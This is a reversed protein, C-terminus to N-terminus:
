GKQWDERTVSDKTSLEELLMVLWKRDEDGMKSFISDFRSKVNECGFFRVRDKLSLGLSDTIRTVAGYSVQGFIKGGEIKSLYSYNLRSRRGLERLSFNQEERFVKILHGLAEAM